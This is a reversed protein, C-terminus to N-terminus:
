YQDKAGPNFGAKAGLMTMTAKETKGGAKYKKTGGRGANGDVVSDTNSMLLDAAMKRQAPDKLLAKLLGGDKYMKMLREDM